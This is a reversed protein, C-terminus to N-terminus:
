AAEDFLSEQRHIQTPLSLERGDVCRCFVLKPRLDTTNWVRRGGYSDTGKGGERKCTFGETIGVQEWGDQLYIKGIRPPEILTEFGVPREGYKYFWDTLSQARFMELVKVAFQWRLPYRNNVKEIHFFVNNIIKQIDAAKDEKALGYFEDRGKLHMIASGAVISGYCVGDHEVLYCINRGVFGEPKSYHKEMDRRLRTHSNKVLRLNV